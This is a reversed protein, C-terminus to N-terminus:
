DNKDQEYLVMTQYHFTAHSEVAVFVGGLPQFDCAVLNNVEKEFDDLNSVCVLYYKIVKPEIM